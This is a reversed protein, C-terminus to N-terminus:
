LLWEDINAGLEDAVPGAKKRIVSMAIGFCNKASMRRSIVSSRRDGSGNGVHITQNDHTRAFVLPSSHLSSPSISMGSLRFAFM